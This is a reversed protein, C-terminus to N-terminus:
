IDLHAFMDPFIASIVVPSPEFAVLNLFNLSTVTLVVLVLEYIM